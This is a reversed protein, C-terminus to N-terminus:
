FTFFYRLPLRLMETLDHYSQSEPSPTELHPPSPLPEAPIEATKNAQGIQVNEEFVKREPGNLKRRKRKRDKELAAETRRYEQKKELRKQRAVQREEETLKRRGM